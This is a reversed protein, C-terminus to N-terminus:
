DATTIRSRPQYYPHQQQQQQGPHHTRRTAIVAVTAARQLHERPQSLLCSVLDYHGLHTFQSPVVFMLSHIHSCSTIGFTKCRWTHLSKNV